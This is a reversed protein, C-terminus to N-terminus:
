NAREQTCLYTCVICFASQAVEFPGSILVDFPSFPMVAEQLDGSWNVQLPAPDHQHSVMEAIVEPLWDPVTYPCAGILAALGLVGSHRKVLLATCLIHVNGMCVCEGVGVWVCGCVCVCM